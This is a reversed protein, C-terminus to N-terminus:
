LAGTEGDTLERLATMGPRYDRRRGARQGAIRQPDGPDPAPHAWPM